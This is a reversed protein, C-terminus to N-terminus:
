SGFSTRLADYLDALRSPRGTYTASLILYLARATQRNLRITSIEGRESRKLEEALTAAHRQWAAGAQIQAPSENSFKGVAFGDAKYALVRTIHDTMVYTIGKWEFIVAAPGAIRRVSEYSCNAVQAVARLSNGARLAQVIAERRRDTVAEYNQQVLALHELPSNSPTM